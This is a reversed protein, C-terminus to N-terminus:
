IKRWLYKENVLRSAALINKRTLWDLANNLVLYSGAIGLAFISREIAVIPILGQWIAPTMPFFYIWLAGGVAHASFTAGLARALLSKERVFYLAIPILWYGAFYWVQRGVPHSVFAIIALAPVLWNFKNKGAFYAVAALMPFFRIITGADIIQGGHSLWNGLQVVLAALMGAGVGIFGGATPGLLDFLTFKVKSGVLQTLPIQLAIFGAVAFLALFLLNKKSPYRM